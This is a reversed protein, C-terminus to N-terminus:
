VASRLLPLVLSVVEQMWAPFDEAVYLIMKSPTPQKINSVLIKLQSVQSHSGKPKNKREFQQKEQRLSHALNQLHEYQQVLLADITGALPWSAKRVSGTKGLISWVHECWHPIIPAMLLVQVEMFRFIVDVHLGESGVSNRYWDRYLQLDFFGSTLAKRFM